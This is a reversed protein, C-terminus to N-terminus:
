REINTPERLIIYALYPLHRLGAKKVKDNSGPSHARTSRPSYPVTFTPLVRRLNLKKTM